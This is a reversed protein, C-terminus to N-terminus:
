QGITEFRLNFFTETKVMFSYNLIRKLVTRGGGGLIFLYIFLYVNKLMETQTRARLYKRLIYTLFM